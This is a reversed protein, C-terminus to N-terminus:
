YIIDVNNVAIMDSCYSKLPRWEIRIPTKGKEKNLYPWYNQTPKVNSNSKNDILYQCINNLTLVYLLCHETDLTWDICTTVHWECSQVWQLTIFLLINLTWHEVLKPSRLISHIFPFSVIRSCFSLSVRVFDLPICMSCLVSWKIDDKHIWNQHIFLISQCQIWKPKLTQNPYM